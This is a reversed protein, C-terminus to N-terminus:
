PTPERGYVRAFFPQYTVCRTQQDQLEGPDAALSRVAEVQPPTACSQDALVGNVRPDYRNFAAFEPPIQGTKSLASVGFQDAIPIAPTCAASLVCMLVLAPFLHRMGPEAASSHALTHRAFAGPAVM